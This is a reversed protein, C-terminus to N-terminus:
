GAAPDRRRSSMDDVTFPDGILWRWSGDHQRRAVEIAYVSTREPSLKTWETHLLAIDGAQIEQKIRFEFRTRAAANPALQERLGQHGKKMERARNLIVAEPDYLALLSELNGEAMYQSFLCCIEEPTKPSM